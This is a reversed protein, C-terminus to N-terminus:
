NGAGEKIEKVEPKDITGTVRFRVPATKKGEPDTKDLLISPVELVLDLSKDFGVSGSSRILLDPSFDPFGFRLGEHYMRGDRVKFSVEADKVVRVVDSPKKGYMDALVKVVTQLLPTKVDVSIQYLRLKGALEVKKELESLPVGLPVRFTELSLSFEGQVGTLDSLTPAVLHLLEDAVEPTLKRKDFVTVPALTLMRGNKSEEVTFTLDLNDATLAATRGDKLRVVLAAEKIVMKPGSVSGTVHCQFLGKDCEGKRLRPMELYLDLTEDLGISGRSSVVLDPDIEPFGIRQGDHYLRGDRVQFRIESEEVLRIMSPPKKGDLDALFRVLGQWMPSKLESSVQHLTLKGEAEMQKVEQQLDLGLPIRLKSFSLSVEGTVQRESHVDPAIYKMLNDAVGLNLKRKKFVEVPDVVLVHGSATNEVRMNLNIGDAALMPQKHGPQRLVFSADEVAIKPNAITGTIRCKAPGKEKRLAEDLRPLEVILDLTEDLGVSGRSSVAFGPDLDPCCLRLGDYHLRGDRVQFRIESDEVFHIARPPERGNLDALLRIMSLWMPSKVQASVQHLTLKGEAQLQKEEQEWALGLPIRLKSLSLSVEGTVQREGHVDPAILRMLRDPVGLNLKRKKFVDVPDVVLVHGAATNEVRMSLNIGDAALVPDKHGPQRLVFSADEVAIKPNAITGTIRCRAPGKEKQLVEDLRPLDVSVDLTEDLGVSGRTSVVFGPDLDPCSIRLGDYHLRGDHVQFRIESEGVLHVASPPKKGNLDALL